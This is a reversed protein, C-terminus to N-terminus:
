DRNNCIQKELPLFFYITSVACGVQNQCNEIGPYPTGSIISCSAAYVEPDYEFLKCFNHQRDYIFFKCRGTYITNCLTQCTTEDGGKSTEFAPNNEEAKCEDLAVALCDGNVKRFCFISVNQIYESKNIVAYPEKGNNQLM